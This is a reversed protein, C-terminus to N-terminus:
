PVRQTPYRDASVSRGQSGALDADSLDLRFKAVEKQSTLLINPQTECYLPHSFDAASVEFILDTETLFGPMVSLAFSDNYTDYTHGSGVLVSILPTHATDSVATLHVVVFRQDTVDSSFQLNLTTGVRIDSISVRIGGV